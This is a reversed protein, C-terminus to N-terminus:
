ESFIPVITAGKGGCQSCRVHRELVDLRRLARRQGVEILIAAADRVNAHGCAECTIRLNYGQRACDNLTETRYSGVRPLHFLFPVRTLRGISTVCELEASM